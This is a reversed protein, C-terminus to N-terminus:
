PHPECPRFELNLEIFEPRQVDAKAVSRQRNRCLETAEPEEHIAQVSSFQDYEDHQYKGAQPRGRPQDRFRGQDTATTTPQHRLGARRFPSGPDGRM